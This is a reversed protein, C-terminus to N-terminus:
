CKFSSRYVESSWDDIYISGNDRGLQLRVEVSETAKTTIEATNYTYSYEQYVNSTTFDDANFTQNTGDTYNVKLQFRIRNSNDSKAFVNLKSLDM